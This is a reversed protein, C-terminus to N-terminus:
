DVVLEDKFEFDFCFILILSSLVKYINEEKLIENSGICELVEYFDFYGVFDVSYFNENGGVIM